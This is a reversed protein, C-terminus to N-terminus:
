DQENEKEGKKTFDEISEKVISVVIQLGIFVACLGITGGMALLIFDYLEKM